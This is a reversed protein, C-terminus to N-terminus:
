QPTPLSPNLIYNADGFILYSAISTITFSAVIVVLGIGSYVLRQTAGQVAKPDGSSSLYMYGASVINFLGFLGAILTILKIMNSIFLLLGSPGEGFQVVGPPPTVCGFIDTCASILAFMPTM